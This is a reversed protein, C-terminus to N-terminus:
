RGDCRLNSRHHYPLKVKPTEKRRDFVEESPLAQIHPACVCEGRPSSSLQPATKLCSSIKGLSADCNYIYIYIYIVVIRSHENCCTFYLYNLLREMCSSSISISLCQHLTVGTSAEAQKKNNNNNNNHFLSLVKKMREQRM